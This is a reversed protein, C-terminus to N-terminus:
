RTTSQDIADGVLQLADSVAGGFFVLVVVALLASLSLILGYEV